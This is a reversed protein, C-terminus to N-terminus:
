RVLEFAMELSYKTPLLGDNAVQVVWQGAGEPLLWNPSAHPMLTATREWLLLANGVDVPTTSDVLVLNDQPVSRVTDRIVEPNMPELAGDRFEFLRVDISSLQESTLMFAMRLAKNGRLNEPAVRFFHREAPNILNTKSYSFPHSM